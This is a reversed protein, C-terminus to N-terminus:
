QRQTARRTSGAFLRRFPMSHARSAWTGLISSRVLRPATFSPTVLVM